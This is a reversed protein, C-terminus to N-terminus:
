VSEKYPKNLAIIMKKIKQSHTKFLGEIYKQRKEVNEKSNKDYCHCISFYDILLIASIGYFIQNVFPLNVLHVFLYAFIAFALYLLFFLMKYVGNQSKKDRFTEDIPLTSKYVKSDYLSQIYYYKEKSKGYSYEIYGIPIYLCIAEETDVNDIVRVRRYSDGMRGLKEYMKKVIIDHMIANKAKFTDSSSITKKLIKFKELKLTSDKFTTNYSDSFIMKSIKLNACDCFTRTESVSFSKTSWTTYEKLVSEVEPTEYKTYSGDWNKEYEIKYRGTEKKEWETHNKGIEADGSVTLSIKYVYFPVYLFDITTIKSNIIDVPVNQDVNQLFSLYSSIFKEESFKTKAFIEKIEKEM